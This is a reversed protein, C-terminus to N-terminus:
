NPIVQAINGKLILSLEDLGTSDYHAQAAQYNDLAAYYNGLFLSSGGLNHRAKALGLPYNNAKAKALAQRAYKAVRSPNRWSMLFGFDNLQDVQETETLHEFNIFFKDAISDVQASTDFALLCILLTIHIFHSRLNSTTDSM